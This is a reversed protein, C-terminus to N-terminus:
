LSSNIFLILRPLNELVIAFIGALLFILVFALLVKGIYEVGILPQSVRGTSQSPNLGQIDVLKKIGKSEAIQLKWGNGYNILVSDPGFIIPEEGEKVAEIYLAHPDGPELKQNILSLAFSAKVGPAFRKAKGSSGCIVEMFQPTPEPAESAEKEEAM